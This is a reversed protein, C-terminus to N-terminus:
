QSLFLLLLTSLPFCILTHFRLTGNNLPSYSYIISTSFLSFHFLSNFVLPLFLPFLSGLPSCLFLASCSLPHLLSLLLKAPPESPHAGPSRCSGLGQSVSRRCQPSLSSSAPSRLTAESRNNQHHFFFFIRRRQSHICIM